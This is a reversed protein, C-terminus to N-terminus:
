RTIRILFTTGVDKQSNLLISGYREIFAKTEESLGVGGQSIGRQGKTSYGQKFLHDQTAKDMGCGRDSIEFLFVKGTADLRVRIDRRDDPFDSSTEIASIVAEVANRLLNVVITRWNTFSHDDLIKSFDNGGVVTKISIRFKQLDESREERVVEVAGKAVEDFGRYSRFKKRLQAAQIQSADEEVEDNDVYSKFNASAKQFDDKDSDSQKLSYLLMELRNIKNAFLDDSADVIRKFEEDNRAFKLFEQKTETVLRDLVNIFKKRPMAGREWKSYAAGFQVLKKDVEHVFARVKKQTPTEIEKKELFKDRLALIFRRM